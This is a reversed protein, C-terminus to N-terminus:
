SIQETTSGKSSRTELMAAVVQSVMFVGGVPMTLYPWAMPIALAPSRQGEALLVLFSGEWILLLLFALVVLHSSVVLFRSIWNPLRDRLLTMAIHSGSRLAVGAGIFTMWIMLFVSAEEVWPIPARFVYRLVVQVMVMGTMLAIALQCSVEAGKEITGLIGLLRSRLVEKM